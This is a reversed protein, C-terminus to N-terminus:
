SQQRTALGHLVPIGPLYYAVAVSVLGHLFASIYGMLSTRNSLIEWPIMPNKIWTREIVVFFGLGVLGVLLPVLVPASSWPYVDGGWTLGLIASTAFVVFIVAGLWDVKGLKQVLSGAPVRLTM